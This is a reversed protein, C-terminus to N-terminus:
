RRRLRDVQIKGEADLRGDLRVYDGSRPQKGDSRARRDSDLALGDLTGDTDLTGHLRVRAGAPLAAPEGGASRAGQTVWSEILAIDTDSLWPPGDLPMRPRAQGKIRRVLESAEPRGPVVRARDRASLTDALSTLRYGEPAPGMLGQEAHCKACSKAFIPAVHAYTVPQGPTPRPDAAASAAGEANGAPLGDRIWREFLAIEDDALFPPGTMPMRPQSTGKLRRVLESAAPDGARAVKGRASGALLGQLSDLHLGAAASPGAHCMVCRASLIPLLDAYTAARAAVPAAFLAFAITWTAPAHKM